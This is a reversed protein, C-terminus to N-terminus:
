HLSRAIAAAPEATLNINELSLRDLRNTFIIRSVLTETLHADRTKSPKGFIRVVRLSTCFPFIDALTGMEQRETHLTDMKRLFSLSHPTRGTVSDTNDNSCSATQNDHENLPDGLHKEQTSAATSSILERLMETPFTGGFLNKSIQCVHPMIKREKKLFFEKLPRRPWQKLCVALKMEGSCSLVIAKTYEAVTILDGHSKESNRKEDSFFIFKPMLAYKLLEQDRAVINLQNSDILFCSIVIFEIESLSEKRGVSDLLHFVTSAAETSLGCAFKLVESLKVIKEFTEVKFLSSDRKPKSCTSGRIALVGEKIWWAALFEQVSNHIFYAGKERNPSTMNVIQFLGVESLKEFTRLISDPLESCRVYLRDQLLADFAVKGLNSLDETGKTSTVIHKFLPNISQNLPIEAIDLLDKERLYSMFEQIDEGALFKRAFSKIRERSKFGSIEFQVHSPGRIEDCKSQRTSVIIHCDRLQEGKWIKLIPPHEKAGSYEDYGDLILLVKDKNNIIYNYLSDVSIPGDGALRKSARLVKRIDELDCVDRLKILLLIYFNMMIEKLSKSWDYAAKKCFTSKGIGPRGYVLIRTPNGKFMDTYDELEEQTVGSPKRQDRVWSLPTYIEDIQISSSDEWPVIKVKSLTRYYSKLQEQCNEVNLPAALRRRKNESRDDQKCSEEGASIDALMRRKSESSDDSKCSEDGVPNDAFPFVVDIEYSIEALFVITKLISRLGSTTKGEGAKDGVEKAIKLHREHYQIARQFDGLSDYANGLNCYSKGEGAKDGVGKAIKLCREHYQIAREFDGLSQYANGLNGYSKGEGAKDGVEKASELDREHYQIARQFDGLSNYANGLNCYSQGEGAKEGEEKAVKLHCEHYQIARQFDGLSDYGNGLDGYSNGQGPKERVKISLHLNKEHHLVKKIATQSLQKNVKIDESEASNKDRNTKVEQKSGSEDTGDTSETVCQTWLDLLKKNNHDMALGKQCWGIAEQYFHLQECASAGNEIAKIFTPELQVSVTADDLAEQYNGFLLQAAARNSYLAANVQIDKCNVQLGETYLHVANYAEGKSYENDGDKLYVEAIAEAPLIKNDEAPPVVTSAQNNESTDALRRRKNESPGDSKCSEEASIDGLRRPKNESPDDRKCSEEEAPIDARNHCIQEALDRRQILEHQLAANLIEYTAASGNEQEWTMLMYYGKDPLQRYRQDIDQLKPDEVGLRRGLQLWKGAIEKGVKELEDKTPTGQKVAHRRRKNESPDGSKCSVEGGALKRRKNESSDDSKCSEERVPNDQTSHLSVYHVEHIHGLVLTRSKDVPCQPRVIVEPAASLSSVVRICTQYCNAATQLIVHDGWAGDQEMYTLYDTWSQHGHVFNFLNTGNPLKPNKRLYQVLIQRLEDHKIKIGMAIELQDSLAHFMCNGLGENDFIRFGKDSAIKKLEIKLDTKDNVKSADLQMQQLQGIFEVSGALEGRKSESPDDSKCSEEGVPNDQTSHLSVYHVEHIHGLVLTRSKDVPCQPRVIVEPAASLSSVVRICTKYCNAAACLIVHDGWAGDQEMYTLYDAWSQHGHVFNFLNTEDPLKPNKRLYQVLRQRLEDHKIKIRMAIELQDSLAYFMCNGSGGNDVIRFGKDAATKKMETKLDTKENVKSADLQM